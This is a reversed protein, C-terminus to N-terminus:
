QISVKCVMDLNRAPRQRMSLNDSLEFKSGGRALFSPM